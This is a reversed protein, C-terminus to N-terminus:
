QEDKLKNKIENIVSIRKSERISEELNKFKVYHDILGHKEILSIEYEYGTNNCGDIDSNIKVLIGGLEKKMIEAEILFRVDPIIFIGSESELINREVVRAFIDIGFVNVVTKAIKIIFDRMTYERSSNDFVINIPKIGNDKKFREITDIDTELINSVLKKLIDAFHLIEVRSNYTKILEEKLYRAFTDKGCNDYGVIGIVTKKSM